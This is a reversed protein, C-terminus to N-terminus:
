IQGPCTFMQYAANEGPRLLAFSPNLFNLLKLSSSERQSRENESEGFRNEFDGCFQPSSFSSRTGVFFFRKSESEVGLPASCFPLIRIKGSATCIKSRLPPMKKREPFATRRSRTITWTAEGVSRTHKCLTPRKVEAHDRLMGARAQRGPPRPLLLYLSFPWKAFFM